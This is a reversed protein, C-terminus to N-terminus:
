LRIKLTNKDAMIQNIFFVQCVFIRRHLVYKFGCPQKEYLLTNIVLKRLIIFKLFIRLDIKKAMSMDPIIRGEM